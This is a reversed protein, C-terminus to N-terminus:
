GKGGADAQKAPEYWGAAIVAAEEAGERGLELEVQEGVKVERGLQQQAHRAGDENAVRYAKAAVSM